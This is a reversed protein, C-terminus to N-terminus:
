LARHSPYKHKPSLGAEAFFEEYPTGKIKGPVLSSPLIYLNGYAHLDLFFKINQHSDVFKKITLSEPESFAQTGRYEEDCENGSSGIISRGFM